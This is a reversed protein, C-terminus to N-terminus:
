SVEMVIEALGEVHLKGSIRKLLLADRDSPNRCEDASEGVAITGWNLVAYGRADTSVLLPKKFRAGRLTM